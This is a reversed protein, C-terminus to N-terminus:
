ATELLRTYIELHREVLRANSWRAVVRERARRGMAELDDRGLLRVVGRALAQPSAPPVLTGVEENVIEPLGGVRTAVVPLGCAMAELAAVSTAEMRSPFIAVEGSCLFGPMDLHPKRGLFRAADRIGLEEALKELRGREPGEGIFLAVVGPVEDRILPLARILDEVGNKKVLRRPVVLVRSGPPPPLTPEVPRFRETEVGNTLAQVRVEPALTMAVEAIEKSAALVYGPRRILSRLIPRWLPRRARELFHSTHLTAAWPRRWKGNAVLVPLLSQFTQAHIVQAWGAWHRTAPISGLAHLIWGLPKRSPFWTRRVLVGGLEEQRPLNPLSRSTVVRVEHGRAVLGRALDTVHSELGGVEPAYYICHILIRV